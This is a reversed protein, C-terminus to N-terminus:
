DDKFVGLKPIRKRLASQRDSVWYYRLEHTIEDVMSQPPKCSFRDLKMLWLQLEKDRNIAQNLRPLILSRLIERSIYSFIGVGLLMSIISMLMESSHIPYYDGYGVTSLMTLTYYM